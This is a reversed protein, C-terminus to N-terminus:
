RERAGKPPPLFLNFRLSPWLGLPFGIERLEWYGYEYFLPFGAGLSLEMRMGSPYQYGAYAAGGFSLMMGLGLGDVKESQYWVAASEIMGASLGFYLPHSSRAQRYLFQCSSSLHFSGDSLFCPLLLSTGASLRLGLEPRFMYEYGIEGKLEWSLSFFLRHEGQASLLVPLILMLLIFSLCLRRGRSLSPM